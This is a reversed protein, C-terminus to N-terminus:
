KRIKNIGLFYKRTDELRVEPKLDRQNVRFNKFEHSFRIRSPNSAQFNLFSEENMSCIHVSPINHMLGQEM